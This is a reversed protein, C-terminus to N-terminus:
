ARFNVRFTYNIEIGLFNEITMKSANVGYMGLHTIKDMAGTLCGDAADCASEVYTDRPISTLLITGTSPNVTVIM